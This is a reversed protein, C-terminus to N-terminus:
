HKYVLNKITTKWTRLQIKGKKVKVIKRDWVPGRVVYFENKPLNSSNNNLDKAKLYLKKEKSNKLKNLHHM